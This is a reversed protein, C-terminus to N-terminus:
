LGGGTIAAVELSKILIDRNVNSIFLRLIDAAVDLMEKKFFNVVVVQSSIWRDISDSARVPKRWKDAGRRPLDDVVCHTRTYARTLRSLESELWSVVRM